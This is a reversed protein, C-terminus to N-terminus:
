DLQGLLEICVREAATKAVLGGDAPCGAPSEGEGECAIGLRVDHIFALPIQDPEMARLPRSTESCIPACINMSAKPMTAGPSGSSAARRARMAAETECSPSATMAAWAKAMSTESAKTSFSM